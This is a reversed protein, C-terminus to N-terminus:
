ANGCYDRSIKARESDDPSVPRITDSMTDFFSTYPDNDREFMKLSSKKQFVPNPILDPIDFTEFNTFKEELEIRLEREKKLEAAQEKIKSELEIRINKENEIEDAQKLLKLNHTLLLAAQNEITKEILAMKQFLEDTYASLQHTNVKTRPLMETTAPLLIWYESSSVFLKYTKTEQFDKMINTNIGWYVLKVFASYFKIEQSEPDKVAVFDVYEVQGVGLNYFFQMVSMETHQSGIRPLYLSLNSYMNASRFQSSQSSM